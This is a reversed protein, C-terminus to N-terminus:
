LAAAEIGLRNITEVTPVGDNDWAHLAYYEDLFKEVEQRDLAEGDFKGGKLPTFFQKPLIDYPRAGIGLKDLVLRETTYIREASEKLEAVSMEIGAILRLMESFEEFKPGSPSMWATQFLCVGLSDAVAHLLEHWWVLTAKGKYSKFDSSVDVGVLGKLVAEPLGMSDMVADGRHQHGPLTSVGQCLALSRIARHHPTLFLANRILPLYDRAEPHLRELAFPGEALVDGFGRRYAIDEIMTLITDADGWRLPHGVEERGILEKEYLTIAFSIMRGVDNVDLGHRNCLQNACILSELDTNELNYGLALLLEYEPGEGRLGAYKGEKVYYRHRCHITCGSCGAMGLAHKDMNEAYLSHAKEGLQGGLGNQTYLWGGENQAAMLLPTGLRALTRTWKSKWLKEKQQKFYDLYAEPQALRIDQRGRAAIAKLNKSGMVAGMGYRGAAAKPDNIVCAIRVKKEGAVGIALSAIRPDNHEQRLAQQTEWTDRGWLHRADKIQIQGDQVLLYVPEPSRGTVVLHDFGAHRLEAAFHGGMNSSGLNGSMPSLGSIDVRAHGLGPVGDFYGAGVLLPNEPALPDYPAKMFSYLMWANLGRGGLYRRRWEASIPTKEVTRTTLDIHALNRNQM